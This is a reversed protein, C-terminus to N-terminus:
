ESIDITIAAAAISSTGTAALETARKVASAIQPHARHWAGNTCDRYAVFNSNEADAIAEHCVNIVATGVRGNLTRQDPASALNLDAYTVRETVYEDNSPTIVVARPPQAHVPFATVGIAAAGVLGAGCIALAKSYNM